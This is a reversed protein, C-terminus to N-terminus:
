EAKKRADLRLGAGRLVRGRGPTSGAAAVAAAAVDSLNGGRRKRSAPSGSVAAARRASDLAATAPAVPRGVAHPQLFRVLERPRPNLTLMIKLAASLQHQLKEEEREQAARGEAGLLFVSRRRPPTPFDLLTEMGTYQRTLGGWLARFDSYRKYCVWPGREDGKSGSGPALEVEVLYRRTDTNTAAAGAVGRVGAGIAGDDLVYGLVVARCIGGGASGGEAPVAGGVAATSREGSAATAAASATTAGGGAGSGERGREEAAAAAATQSSLGAVSSGPLSSSASSSSSSNPAPPAPPPTPSVRGRAGSKSSPARASSASVCRGSSDVKGVEPRELAAKQRSFDGQSLFPIYWAKALAVLKDKDGGVRAVEKERDRDAMTRASAEEGMFELLPGADWEEWERRLCSSHRSVAAASPAPPIATEAAAELMDGVKEMFTRKRRTFLGAGEALIEGSARREETPCSEGDGRGAVGGATSAALLRSLPGPAATNVTRRGSPTSPLSNRRASAADGNGDRWGAGESPFGVFEPSS